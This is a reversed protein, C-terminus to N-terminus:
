RTFSIPEASYYEDWLQTWLEIEDGNLFVCDDDVVSNKTRTFGSVSEPIGNDDLGETSVSTMIMIANDDTGNEGYCQKDISMHTATYVNGEKDMAIPTATGGSFFISDASVKGNYGKVDVLAYAEEGELLGIIEDYSDFSTKEVRVEFENSPYDGVGIDGVIEESAEVEGPFFNIVTAEGYAKYMETLISDDELEKINDIDGENLYYTANGHEDFEEYAEKYIVVAADIVNAMAMNHNGGFMLLGDDYVAIPYATGSSWVSGAYCPEGNEMGYVTANISVMNGDGNDYVEDTVLLVDYGDGVCAFAYYQNTTLTSIISEYKEMDELFPTAVSSETGKSSCGAFMGVSLVSAVIAALCKKANIFKEVKM